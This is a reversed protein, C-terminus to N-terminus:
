LRPVPTRHDRVWQAIGAPNALYARYFQLEQYTLPLVQDALFSIVRPNAPSGIKVNWSAFIDVEHNARDPPLPLEVTFTTGSVAIRGTMSGNIVYHLFAPHSSPPSGLRSGRILLTHAPAQPDSQISVHFRPPVWMDPYRNMATIRPAGGFVAHARFFTLLPFVGKNHHFYLYELVWDNSVTGYHKASTRFVEQLGVTPWQNVSKSAAHYRAKAWYDPVYGIPHRKAIRIWLDYDMCFSLTEDLGGVEYLVQKRIFAAPQLINCREFLKQRDQPKVPFPRIPLNRENACYGNGHVMGWHPNAMLAQVAKRIAGPLYTDDSNLWGIIEGQAVSLGKNIAHSQGRDPESVFRFKKSQRNYQSLIAFTNDTSGGDIVIHEVHPYDQQLVSEITERIYTGQNYSPTIVSVLPLSQTDM